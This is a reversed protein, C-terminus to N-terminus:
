PFSKKREANRRLRFCASDSVHGSPAMIEVSRLRAYIGCFLCVFRTLANLQQLQALTENQERFVSRSGLLMTGM